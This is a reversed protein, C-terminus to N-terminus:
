LADLLKVLNRKRQHRARLDAVYMPFEDERGLTSLLAHIERVHVVAQRYADNNKREITPEIRTRYVQLADEPHQRRRRQALEIWLEPTCDGENAKRWAADVDDEWLFIRVLESRDRAPWARLHPARENAERAQWARLLELALTRREEWEGAPKAREKLKRFAELGPHRAYAEWMLRTAEAHEGRRAREDALFDVLRGDPSEASAEAGRTAWALADDDRGAARYAEAIRLFQSGSALDRAMVGALEDVDRALTEMIRTISYRQGAYGREDGPGRAPVNAWAAEALERYRARGAKGLVRAYREAAGSFTDWDGHLEWAFLREALAAQDPKARRCAKLHLEGLRELLGSMHGSSDDVEQMAGEVAPLAYEALELVDRAEGQALLRELGDIAEDIGSAYDWMESYSVFGRTAVARDIGARFTAVRTARSGDSAAAMLLRDRLRTDRDAADLLLDVLADQTQALCYARLDRRGVQKGRKPRGSEARWALAVAVRHKCFGGESGVPCDCAFEVEGGDALRLNVRYCQMGDVTTVVSGGGAPKLRGVRGEAFYEEGREFSRADARRRISALSPVPVV